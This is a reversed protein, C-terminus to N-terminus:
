LIYIVMMNALTLLGYCCATLKLMRSSLHTRGLATIESVSVSVPQVTKISLYSAMADCSNIPVLNYGQWTTWLSKGSILDVKFSYKVGLQFVKHPDPNHVM